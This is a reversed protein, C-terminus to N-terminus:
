LVGDGGRAEGGVVHANDVHAVGMANGAASSSELVPQLALAFLLLGLPDGQQVGRSLPIPDGGSVLMWSPHGDCQDFWSSM